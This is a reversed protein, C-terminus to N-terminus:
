HRLPPRRLIPRTPNLPALKEQHWMRKCTVCEYWTVGSENEYARLAMPRIEQSYCSPCQQPPRILPAM